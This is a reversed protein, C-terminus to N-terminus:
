QNSAISTLDAVFSIVPGQDGPRALWYATPSTTLFAVGLRSKIPILNVAPASTPVPTVKGTQLDIFLLANSNLNSIVAIKNDTLLQIQNPGNAGDETGAL